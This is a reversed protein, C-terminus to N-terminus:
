NRIRDMRMVRMLVEFMNVEAVELETEQRKRLVLKELGDSTDDGMKYVKGKM